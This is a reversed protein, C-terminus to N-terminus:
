LALVKPNPLQGPTPSLIVDRCNVPLGFDADLNALDESTARENNLFVHESSM